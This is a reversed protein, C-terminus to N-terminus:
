SSVGFSQTTIAFFTNVNLGCYELLALDSFGSHIKNDIGCETAVLDAQHLMAGAEILMYRLGRYRYKVAVKNVNAIYFFAFNPNNTKELDFECLIKRMGDPCLGTSLPQLCNLSPRYHYIGTEPANNLRDGFIFCLVEVPYIAGASPYPRHLNSDAKFSNVLIHEVDKMDIKIESSFSPSTGKRRISSNFKENCPLNRKHFPTIETDSYQIDTVLSNPVHPHLTRYVIPLSLCTNTKSYDKAIEM